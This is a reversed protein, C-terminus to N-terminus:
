ACVLVQVRVSSTGVNGICRFTVANHLSGGIKVKHSFLVSSKVTCQVPVNVISM